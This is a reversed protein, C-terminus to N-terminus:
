EPKCTVSLTQFKQNALEKCGSNRSLDPHIQLMLRRYERLALTPPCMNIDFDYASCNEPRTNERVREQQRERVREREREQERVREREQERVRQKRTTEQDMKEFFKPDEKIKQFFHQELEFLDYRSEDVIKDNFKKHEVEGELFYFQRQNLFNKINVKIDNFNVGGHLYMERFFRGLKELYEPIYSQWQYYNIGRDYNIMLNRTEILYNVIADYIEKRSKKTIKNPTEFESLKQFLIGTDMVYFKNTVYDIITNIYSNYNEVEAKEMQIREKEQRIFEKREQERKLREEYEIQEKRFATSARKAADINPKKNIRRVKSM